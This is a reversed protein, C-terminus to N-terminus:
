RREYDSRQRLKVFIGAKHLKGPGTETWLVRNTQPDVAAKLLGDQVLLACRRPSLSGLRHRRRERGWDPDDASAFRMGPLASRWVLARAPDPGPVFLVGGEGAESENVSWSMRYSELEYEVNPEAVVFYEQPARRAVAWRVAEASRSWSWRGGQAPTRREDGTVTELFRRSLAGVPALRHAVALLQAQRQLPSWQDWVLTAVVAEQGEVAWTPDAQTSLATQSWAGAFENLAEVVRPFRLKMLPFVQQRLFNRSFAPDANTSDEWYPVGERLAVEALLEARVGLFPRLFPGRRAPMGVLGQWSRGRLLRMLVTEAQDDAHHALFVPSGPHERVFEQFCSYRYARATSESSASTWPPGFSRLRVGRQACWGAVLSAEGEREEKPRWGHDIHLATLNEPATVESLAWLLVGSDRGGSYGLGWPLPPSWVLLAKRLADLLTRTANTSAM